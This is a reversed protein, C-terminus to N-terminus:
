SPLLHPSDISATKGASACVTRCAEFTEEAVQEWSRQYRLAIKDQDWERALVEKLAGALAQADRPPVLIGCEDEILEPIGGVRTAVTPRGCSLAEVIVNPCGEAYSPLCFVNAAAMWQAVERSGCVGAFRVQSSVQLMSACAELQPQAPGEGVLVLEAEPDRLAALAEILEKLGKALDLRGVYLLLKTDAAIGLERRSAARSAPHFVSTDCGNLISRVKEAPTGLAVAQKRLHESVTIVFSARQLARKTKLKTIPDPIRNLDSGIAGLIVPIGLKRGAVAAAYGEPYIWYNLIVDADLKELHQM